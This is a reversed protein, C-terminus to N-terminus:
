PLKPSIMYRFHPLFTDYSRPALPFATIKGCLVQHNPPLFVCVRKPAARALAELSPFHSLFSPCLLSRLLSHGPYLFPSSLFLLISPLQHSFFVTLSVTFFVLSLYFPFFLQFTFSLCVCVVPVVVCVCVCVCVCM